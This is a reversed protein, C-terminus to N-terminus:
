SKNRALKVASDLFIKLFKCFCRFIDNVVVAIGNCAHVPESPVLTQPEWMEHCDACSPPLSTLV